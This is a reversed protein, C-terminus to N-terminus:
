QISAVPLHNRGMAHSSLVKAKISYGRDSTTGLIRVMGNVWWKGPFCNETGGNWNKVTGLSIRVPAASSGRQIRLGTASERTTMSGSDQHALTNRPTERLVHTSNQAFQLTRIPTSGTWVPAFTAQARLYRQLSQFTSTMILLHPYFWWVM